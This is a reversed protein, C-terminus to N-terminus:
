DRIEELEPHLVKVMECAPELRRRLVAIFDLTPDMEMEETSVVTHVVTLPQDELQSADYFSRVGVWAVRSNNQPEVVIM